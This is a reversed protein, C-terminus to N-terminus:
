SSASRASGGISGSLVDAGKRPNSSWSTAIVRLRREGLPRLGPPPHFIAPDPANPIVVPDRLELGLERAEDLSFERSFSRRTRLLATSISFGRIPATTSAATCASRATSATCWGCTRRARVPTPACRRLQLLQVPLGVHRRFDQEVRARPRPTRARRGPRPRFQNGGGSPPPAYEHFLALDARGDRSRAWDAYTRVPRALRRGASRAHVVAARPKTRLAM